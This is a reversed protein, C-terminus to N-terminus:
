TSVGQAHGWGGRRRGRRGSAAHAQQRAGWPAAPGDGAERAAQMTPRLACAAGPAPTPPGATSRPPANEAGPATRPARYGPGAPRRHTRAGRCRRSRLAHAGGPAPGAGPRPPPPTSGASANDGTQAWPRPGRRARRDDLRWRSAAGRPGSRAGWAAPGQGAAGPLRSSPWGLSPGACRQGGGPGGRAASSRPWAMRRPGRAQLRGAAPRYARPAAWPRVTGLAGCAPSVGPPGRKRRTAPAGRRGGRGREMARPGPPRGGRAQQRPGPSSRRPPRAM